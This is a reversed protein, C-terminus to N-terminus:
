FRDADAVHMSAVHIEGFAEMFEFLFQGLLSAARPDEHLINCSAIFFHCPGKVQQKRSCAQFSRRPIMLASTNALRRKSIARQAFGPLWKGQM